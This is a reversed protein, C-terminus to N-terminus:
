SQMEAIMTKTTPNMGPRIEKELLPVKGRYIITKEYDGFSFFVNEGSMNELRTM